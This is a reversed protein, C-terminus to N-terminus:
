GSARLLPLRARPPPATRLEGIRRLTICHLAVTMSLNIWFFPYYLVTVFFGSALFGILAADLGHAMRVFFLGSPSPLNHGVQRTRYNLTFTAAILGLFAILGLYGLEAGAEIFINHPLEGDSDYYAHYYPLWNDYGVGLVPRDSMIELGDAWYTTRSISTGDDGMEQMRAKQEAPVILWVLIGLTIAVAFAKVRRRSKAVLWTAVVALGILAGRSSSAVMSIVASVPLMIVFVRWKWKEWWPRVGLLFFLSVPFLTSMQVGCEGSNQFWSPACGVGVAAFGFGREAWSRVGHQTMKMCFILYLLMFVVFRAESNVICTILVFVLVWSFYLSWGAIATEPSYAAFSSVIVILSFIVLLTDALTWARASRGEFLFTAACLVITYFPLGLDALSSYIDQPRVYEWFMYLCILWFSISQATFFRWVERAHARYVSGPLVEGTGSPM